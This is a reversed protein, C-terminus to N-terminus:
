MVHLCFTKSVVTTGKKFHLSFSINHVNKFYMVTNQIFTFLINKITLTGFKKVDFRGMPTVKGKLFSDLQERSRRLLGSFILICQETEMPPVLLHLFSPVLLVHGHHDPPFHAQARSLQREFGHSAPQLSASLFASLTM